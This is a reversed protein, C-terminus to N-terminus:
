LVKFNTVSFRGYTPRFDGIGVLRGANQIVENLVQPPIYEAIIVEILFTAKWGANMAPRRRTIGSRQVTVRQQDIYDWSTKGLSVLEDVAIVGAKYLDSASKRPSRPDQRFRAANIIAGRLYRGPICIEKKENRFVYSELDDTTKGKSGKAAKSKAEISEVSWAHFLLSSTGTITASATYPESFQIIEAADNSVPELATVKASNKSSAM